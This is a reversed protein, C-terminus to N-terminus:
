ICITGGGPIKPGADRVHAADLLHREMKRWNRRNEMQLVSTMPVVCDLELVPVVLFCFCRSVPGEGDSRKEKPEQGAVIVGAGSKILARKRDGSTWVDDAAVTGFM